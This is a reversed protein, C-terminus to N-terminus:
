VHLWNSILKQLNQLPISKKTINKLFLYVYLDYADISKRFVEQTKHLQPIANKTLHSFCSM